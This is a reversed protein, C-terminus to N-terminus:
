GSPDARQRASNPDPATDPIAPVTDWQLIGQSPGVGSPGCASLTVPISGAQITAQEDLNLVFDVTGFCLDTPMSITNDSPPNDTHVHESLMCPQNDKENLQANMLEHNFLLGNGVFFSNPGPPPATPFGEYELL